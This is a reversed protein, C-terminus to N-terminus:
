LGLKSKQNNTKWTEKSKKISFYLEPGL